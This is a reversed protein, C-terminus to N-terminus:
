FSLLTLGFTFPYVGPVRAEEKFMPQLDYNVFCQFQRYGLRMMVGYRFDQLSYDDPTKLKEKNGDARYKIKTHSSLLYGGIVGGSIFIRNAYHNVPVQFELLLPVNLYVASFKSKQNMDFVLRRGQIAGSATKEITTNKNLRYSKFQVGLGTVFGITNRTKQLGISQQMINVYLSNSRFVDHELFDPYVRNLEKDMLTNFGLDIGAWHGTFEDHWINFGGTTYNQIRLDKLLKEPKERIVTVSDPIQAAVSFVSAILFFVVSFILQSIRVSITNQNTYEM